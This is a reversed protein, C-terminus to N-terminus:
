EDPHLQELHLVHAARESATMGAWAPYAPATRLLEARREAPTLLHWKSAAPRPVARRDEAEWARCLGSVTCGNRHWGDYDNWTSPDRAM